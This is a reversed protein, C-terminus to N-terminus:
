GEAQKLMKQMLEFWGTVIESSGDLLRSIEVGFYYLAFVPFGKIGADKEFKKQDEESSDKTFHIKYCDIDTEKALSEYTPAIGVCPGCGDRSFNVFLPKEKLKQLIEEFEKYTHFATITM